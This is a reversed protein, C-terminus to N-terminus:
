RWGRWEFDGAAFHAALFRDVWIVIYINDCDELSVKGAAMCMAAAESVARRRRGRDFSEAVGEVGFGPLERVDYFDAARVQLVGCREREALFKGSVHIQEVAVAAADRHSDVAEVIEGIPPVATPVPRLRV